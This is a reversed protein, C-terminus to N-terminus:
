QNERYNVPHIKFNMKRIEKHTSNTNPRDHINGKHKNKQGKILGRRFYPPTIKWLAM